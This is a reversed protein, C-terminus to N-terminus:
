TKCEAILRQVTNEWRELAEEYYVFVCRECGRGCCESPAPKEPCPPYEINKFKDPKIM